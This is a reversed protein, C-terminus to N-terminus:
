SYAAQTVTGVAVFLYYKKKAYNATGSVSQMVQTNDSISDKSVQLLIKDVPHTHLAEKQM